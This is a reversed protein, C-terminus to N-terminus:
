DSKTEVTSQFPSSSTTAPYAWRKTRNNQCLKIYPIPVLYTSYLIKVSLPLQVSCIYSAVLSVLM